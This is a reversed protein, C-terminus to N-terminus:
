TCSPYIPRTAAQACGGACKWAMSTPLNIDLILLGIDQDAKSLAEMGNTAEIVKFHAARLVRTTAYLSAPNDDVVLIKQQTVGHPLLSSVPIRRRTPEPQFRIPLRVASVRAKTGSREGRGGQRGAARRVQAGAVPGPGHRASTEAAARELQVFDTFLTKIHEPDIGIGTDSVAFEVQEADLLRASVRVEGIPTFKLANSIFNRLIQSVKKDDTYLKIDGDPEDFM